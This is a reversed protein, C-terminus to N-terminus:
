ASIHLARKALESRARCTKSSFIKAKIQNYKILPTKVYPYGMLKM